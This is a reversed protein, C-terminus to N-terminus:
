VAALVPSRQAPHLRGDRLTLVRNAAAIPRNAIVIRTIALAALSANVEREKVLELHSTVEDMLLIRPRRYLARAPLLRQRQGGSMATGLDGVLTSYTMPMTMIEADLGALRACDRMHELEPRPAFFTINKAISGDLLTDAQMVVGAAARLPAM